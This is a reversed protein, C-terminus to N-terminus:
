KACMLPIFVQPNAVAADKVARICKLSSQHDTDSEGEDSSSYHTYDLPHPMTPSSSSAMHHARRFLDRMSMAASSSKSESGGQSSPAPASMESLVHLINNGGSLVENLLVGERGELKCIEGLMTTFKGVEGKVLSTMLSQTKIAVFLSMSGASTKCVDVCQVPPLKQLPHPLVVHYIYHVYTCVTHVYTRVYTCIYVYVCVCWVCVCVCM